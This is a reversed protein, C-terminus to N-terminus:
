RLGLRVSAYIFVIALAEVALTVWVLGGRSRSDTFGDQIAITATALGLILCLTTSYTRSLFWGTVMFSVLGLRMAIVWHIPAVHEGGSEILTEVNDAVADKTEGGSESLLPQTGMLITQEDSELDVASNPDEMLALGPNDRPRDELWSFDTPGADTLFTETDSYSALVTEVSGAEDAIPPIHQPRGGENEPKEESSIISNLSMTSTVLLAVWILSGILGLEALCLV